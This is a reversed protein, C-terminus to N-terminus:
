LTTAKPDRTARLWGGVMKGIEVLFRSWNEYKRVDLYRMEMALRVQRKLVALEVDLDMLTSKKHYRKSATIVLRQLQWMSSRIEAALGHKESKPFQKLATYGYTIMERCREEIALGHSEM